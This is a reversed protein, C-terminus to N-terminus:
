GRARGVAPTAELSVRIATSSGPGAASAGPRKADCDSGGALGAALASCEEAEQEKDDECFNDELPKGACLVRVFRACFESLM